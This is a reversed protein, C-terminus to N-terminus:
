AEQQVKIGEADRFLINIKIYYEIELVVNLVFLEAFGIFGIDEKYQFVENYEEHICSCQLWYGLVINSCDKGVLICTQTGIIGCILDVLCHILDVSFGFETFPIIHYYQQKGFAPVERNNGRIEGESLSAYVLPM